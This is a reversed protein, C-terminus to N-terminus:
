VLRKRGWVFLFVTVAATLTLLIAAGFWQMGNMQSMPLYDVSWGVVDAKQLCVERAKDTPMNSCTSWGLLDGSGTRYWEDIQYAGTPLSPSSEAQVGKNTTVTIVDGLSLMFYGWVLQLLVTFGFTVVMATLTRRLVAGIAVGGFVSFLTLAVPVPGTTNFAEGSTWDLVTVESKVPNWWWGFAASLAGTSVVVVLGALGLKTALWRSRSLSQAAVLKATGNELDGAILPAGLFVGLLIPIAQLGFAVFSFADIYQQFKGGAEALGKGPYGYGDLFDVMQGRQYVIWAASLAAAALVTWFAARHQRWVLWTMGSLRPRRTAEATAANTTANMTGNKADTSTSTRTFTSM